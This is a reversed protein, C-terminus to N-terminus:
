IQSRVDSDRCSVRSLQSGLDSEQCGFGAM